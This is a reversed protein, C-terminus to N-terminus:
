SNFLVLQDKLQRLNTSALRTSSFGRTSHTCAAACNIETTRHNLVASRRVKKVIMKQFQSVIKDRRAM